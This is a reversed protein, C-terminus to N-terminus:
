SLGPEGVEPASDGYAGVDGDVGLDAALERAEGLQGLMAELVTRRRAFVERLDHGPRGAYGTPGRHEAASVMAAPLWAFRVVAACMGLRAWRLDHPWGSERLGASYSRWVAADLEAFRGPELLHELMTSHVLNAPDEGVAGIGVFSWDFVVPTASPEPPVVINRPWLDLHCATRPCTALVRRWRPMEAMLADYGRRLEEASDGFGETVVPHAWAAASNAAPGRPRSSAYATTWERSTTAMPGRAAELPRGGQARGLRRAVAAIDAVGLDAGTRGHVDELFLAETGDRDSRRGRLAPPRLHPEFARVAGDRYADAERRWHNWHQPHGGAGWHPVGGDADRRLVKHVVTSGDALHVRQVVGTVANNPNFVLPEVATAAPLGVAALDAALAEDGPM